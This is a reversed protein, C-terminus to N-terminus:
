ITSAMAILVCLRLLIITKGLVTLLIHGGHSQHKEPTDQKGEEDLGLAANTCRADSFIPKNCCSCHMMNDYNATAIQWYKHMAGINCCPHRDSIDGANMIKTEHKAFYAEEMPLVRKMEVTKENLFAIPQEDWYSKFANYLDQATM